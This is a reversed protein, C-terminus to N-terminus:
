NANADLGLYTLFPEMRPERGLFSKLMDMEDVSGGRSLILDRYRKGAEPNLLGHEKFYTFVDQAYVLSWMYGYYGAAYNTLHGFGAQVYTDPVPPFLECEAMLDNAIKTTDLQGDRSLNYALDLLGYYVQREAKVGSSVNRSAIMAKLLDAPLPENTRYHRAFTNLVEPDWCWNEFMQSPLEVFDQTTAAGSLTGLSVETLVNHLCHGFEHFFTVVDEHTMLSPRDPSPPPFNCVIAAVPLQVRGDAWVKRPYLGFVAFHNYKAERPYPDMYFTGVHRSTAKDWVEYVRVSEHWLPPGQERAKDTVDRFEVGYLRQTVDFLGTIVRDLPFYEQVKENDVAYKNKLLWNDLYFQDWAYVQAQPDGTLQRKAARYEAFDAEAKRRILPRLKAYFEQVTRANKVMRPETNYDAIHAYGLLQAKQARLKLIQELLAINKTGGIRKYARYVKERTAEVDAYTMIAMYTPPDLGCQHLDGECPIRSVVAEPVGRLEAKTLPVKTEDERINKSFELGLKNEELELAKVRDRVEKPKEMGARRFDRLTDDLLTQQEPNLQPKADAVARVARYLDERKGLEVLWDGFHQEALQGREREAADTSVYAMFIPMQTDLQLQVILDDLAGLTNAFTRQGDPVAVIAAVAREAKQLAPAIPSDAPIAYEAGHAAAVLGGGTMLVMSWRLLAAMAM